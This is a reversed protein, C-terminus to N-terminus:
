RAYKSSLFDFLPEKIDGMERRKSDLYDTYIDIDHRGSLMDRIARDQGDTWKLGQHYSHLILVNKREVGNQKEACLVGCLLFLLLIFIKCCFKRM